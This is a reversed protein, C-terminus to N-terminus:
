VSAIPHSREAHKELNNEAEKAVMAAAAAICLADANGRASNEAAKAAVTEATGAAGFAQAAEVGAVQARARRHEGPAAVGVGPTAVGSAARAASSM